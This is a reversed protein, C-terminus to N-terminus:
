WDVFRKYLFIPSRDQVLVTNATLWAIIIIIIM